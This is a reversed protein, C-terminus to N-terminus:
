AEVGVMERIRDLLVDRWEEGEVWQDGPCTTYVLDRHGRVGEISLNLESMLYACLRTVSDLQVSSPGQSSFEGTLAIGVAMPNFQRAHFSVTALDNTQYVTGDAAIVFHYGIGPWGIREVHQRAIEHPTTDPSTRTHHIVLYRINSLPRTEYRTEAHRAMERIVDVVGELGIAERPARDRLERLHQDLLQQGIARLRVREPEYEEMVVREFFQAPVGELEMQDSIPPGCVDPGLREFLERFPGSVSFEV